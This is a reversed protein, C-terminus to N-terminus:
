SGEPWAVPAQQPMIPRLFFLDVRFEGHEHPLPLFNLFQQWFLGIMDLGSDVAGRNRRRGCRAAPETARAVSLATVSALMWNSLTAPAICRAPNV